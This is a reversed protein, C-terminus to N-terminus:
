GFFGICALMRNFKEEGERRYSGFLPNCCTCDRISTINKIGYDHLLSLNAKRLDIYYDGGERRVSQSGYARKFMTYREREVNYCCVGIGPGILIRLDNKLCNFHQELKKVANLVIGTGKWGSHVLGFVGKTDDALFIPLCDAVTVSLVAKENSTVLGDAERSYYEHPPRDEIIVVDRTHKQTLCYIRSEEAKIKKFFNRRHAYKGRKQFSMDGSKKLTLYSRIAKGGSAVFPLEVYDMGHIKAGSLM